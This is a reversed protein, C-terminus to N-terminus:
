STGEEPRRLWLSVRAPQVTQDVVRLLEDSLTDLDIEDRLRASFAELTKEADYKHRYFRHDIFDQVRRRLPQFLAAVALTSAAVTVPSDGVLSSVGTVLGLYTVALIATLSGYVLTRNILVDIDYLRYRLIAIAATIPLLSLTTVLVVPWIWQPVDPRWWVIPALVIGFVLLSAAVLFWKVQQRETGRARRFRVFLSAVSAILMALLLLNASIDLVPRLPRLAEIGLPNDVPVPVLEDPRFAVSVFIGTMALATLWAVIRWRRTPPRGDPFLLFFFVYLGFSAPSQFTVDALWAAALWGPLHVVRHFGVQAYVGLALGSAFLLSIGMFIWGIPNSPQNAAVVAGMALFVVVLVLAAYTFGRGPDDAPTPTRLAAPFLALMGVVCTLM